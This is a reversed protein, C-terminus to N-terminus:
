LDAVFEEVTLGAKSILSRLTGRAIERHNPISLTAINGTKVLIIHSGKQRVVRWGSREFAKIAEHPKLLPVQPM